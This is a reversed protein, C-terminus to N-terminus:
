SARERRSLTMHGIPAQDGLRRVKVLECVISLAIEEATVAGISIGIPSYVRDLLTQPVGKDQLKQLLIRTKRRSGIMGIYRAETRIAQELVLEDCLHGRTVIVVYAQEDVRMRDFIRRFGAIVATDADPFREQSAYEPREDCVTVRFHVARAYRAVHYAVHGAGCLILHPSAALPEVFLRTDGVMTKVGAAGWAAANAAATAIEHSVDLMGDDYSFAALMEGQAWRMKRPAGDPLTVTVLVGPDVDEATASLDRFLPLATPDFTEMLLEVSGGCIGNEDDLSAGLDFHFFRAQSAALAGAAERIMRGEVQGGGVTGVRRGDDFVLMKYGVKGPTSGSSDTVTVLAINRGGELALAAERFIESDNMSVM